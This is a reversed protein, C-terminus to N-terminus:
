AEVKRRKKSEKGELGKDSKRRKKKDQSAGGASASAGADAGAVAVAPPPKRALEDDLGQVLRLISARVAGSGSLLHSADDQLFNSLRSAADRSSLPRVQTGKLRLPAPLKAHNLAMTVRYYPKDPLRLRPPLPLRRAAARSTLREVEEWGRPRVEDRGQTGSCCLLGRLQVKVRAWEVRETAWAGAAGRRAREVGGGGSRTSWGVHM